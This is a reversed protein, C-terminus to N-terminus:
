TGSDAPDPQPTCLEAGGYHSHNASDGFDEDGEVDVLCPDMYDEAFFINSGLQEFCSTDIGARAQM